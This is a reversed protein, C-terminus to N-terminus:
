FYIFIAVHEVFISMIKTERLVMECAQFKTKGYLKILTATEWMLINLFLLFFRTKAELCCFVAKNKHRTKNQKWNETTNKKKIICNRSSANM